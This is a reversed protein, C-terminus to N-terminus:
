QDTCNNNRIVDSALKVGTGPTICHKAMGWGSITNNEITIRTVPDPREAGAALYIGGFLSEPGEPPYRCESGGPCHALNLRTFTNGAIRHGTGIVYMAGYKLGDFQNGSVEINQSRMDRNANNFSIGYNGYPYEEVKGRNTCTNGRVKGDHFGDLDICKGNIEELRNNEYLSGEVNGATDIAATLGFNEVDAAAAPYGIRRATNGRVTVDTAHGVQIADRGINEFTNNELKGHLNRPAAYYAHTWLGNGLINRFSCWAVTFNENGEELLIGGTGNNRGKENHSGSDEVTVHTIFVDRSNTVLVAYNAINRLKVGEIALGRASELLIGNNSYFTTFPTNGPPLSLPKELYARSGDITLGHLELNRCGRCSLIARGRFTRAARLVTRAGFIKLDHAGDPIRIENSVEVTGPSLYVSGSLPITIAFVFGALVM